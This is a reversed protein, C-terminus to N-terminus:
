GDSAAAATTIAPPVIAPLLLPPEVVPDSDDDDVTGTPFEVAAGTLTYIIKQNKVKEKIQCKLTTTLIIIVLITQNM